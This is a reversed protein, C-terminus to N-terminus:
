YYVELNKIKELYHELGNQSLGGDGQMDLPTYCSADWLDHTETLGSEYSIGLDAYGGDHVSFHTEVGISTQNIRDTM